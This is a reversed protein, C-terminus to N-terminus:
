EQLIPAFDRECNPHALPNNLAEELTWIQGNAKRCEEDDDSDLVRVKEVGAQAYGLTNGTNYAIATETRAIRDARWDAYGDFKERVKDAVADGISAPDLTGSDLLGRLLTVVDSKTTDDLSVIRDGVYGTLKKKVFPDDVDFADLGARKAGRAGQIAVIEGFVKGLGTSLTEHYAEWDFKDLLALLEAATVPM